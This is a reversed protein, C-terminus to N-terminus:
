QLQGELEGYTKMFIQIM